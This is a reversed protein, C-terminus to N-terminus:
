STYYANEEGYVVIVTVRGGVGVAYVAAPGAAKAAARGATGNLERKSDPNVAKIIVKALVHVRVKIYCM